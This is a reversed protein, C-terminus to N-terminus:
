GLLVSGPLPWRHPSERLFSRQPNEERPLVRCTHRPCGRGPSKDGKGAAVLRLGAIQEASQLRRFREVITRSRLCLLDSEGFMLKAPTGLVLDLIRWGRFCLR